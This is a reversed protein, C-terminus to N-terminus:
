GYNTLKSAAASVPETITGSVSPSSCAEQQSSHQLQGKDVTLIVIAKLVCVSCSHAWAFAPWDRGWLAM